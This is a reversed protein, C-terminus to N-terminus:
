EMARCKELLSIIPLHQPCAQECQGCQICDSAKGRGATVITYERKTRFEPSGKKRNEVTFIEPIPIQMPCGKTCYHCATCPISKDKNLADQAMRIVEEEEESLPKFDKMFSLNDQMQELSSMGSLVALLNDKEAVFRLAWSAYSADPNAKNLIEKVSDIPDALIGGKVPEMVVVPKGHKKCIEYNIRSAVGPNEWDAYNIQLQVFEADPHKELLEELLQPDAHFSFGWHKILGQEKLGKVYDWIGYEDYKEYNTRQIAHVLYYDFYGAGSRELSTKFERKAEEEGVTSGPPIILKSALTYSDRPYREVLAKRIAEESGAYAYATDFYTGGAEIFADVMQSVQPVDISGDENKPLRMLGFGLKLKEKGTFVSM